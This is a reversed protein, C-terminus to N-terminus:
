SISELAGFFSAVDVGVIAAGDSFQERVVAHDDVFKLGFFGDSQWAIKAKLSINLKPIEVIAEVDDKFPLDLKIKLGGISLNRIQCTFRHGKVNIFARWLVSKRPLVRNNDDQNIEGFSETNVSNMNIGM